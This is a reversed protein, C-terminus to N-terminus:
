HNNDKDKEKQLFFELNTSNDKLLDGLVIKKSPQIFEENQFIVLRHNNKLHDEEKLQNIVTEISDTSQMLLLFSIESGDEIVKVTVQFVSKEDWSFGYRKNINRISQLFKESIIPDKVLDHTKKMFSLARSAVSMQDELSKFSHTTSNRDFKVDMIARQVEETLRYDKANKDLYRAVEGLDEVSNSESYLHFLNENLKLLEKLRQQVQNFIIVLDEKEDLSNEKIKPAKMIEVITEAHLNTLYKRKNGHIDKNKEKRRIKRLEKIELSKIYWPNMKDRKLFQYICNKVDDRSFEQFKSITEEEAVIYYNFDPSKDAFQLFTKGIKEVRTEV